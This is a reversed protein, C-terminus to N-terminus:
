WYDNSVLVGNVMSIDLSYVQSINLSDLFGAVLILNSVDTAAYEGGIDQDNLDYSSELAQRVSKLDYVPMSLQNNVSYSHVGGIGYVRTNPDSLKQRLVPPVRSSFEDVILLGLESQERSIPNPSTIRMSNKMQVKNILINKFSVSALIAEFTFPELDEDVISSFQMSGAGIEWVAINKRPTKVTSRVAEFSLKGKQKPSIVLFNLDFWKQLKNAFDSANIAKRFVSTGVALSQKVDYPKALQFMESIIQLGTWMIKRSFKKNSSKILDGQFDIKRSARLFVESIKNSCFDVEAVAMKISTSGFDLAMRVEHCEKAHFQHFLGLILFCFLKM